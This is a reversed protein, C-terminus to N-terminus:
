GDTTARGDFHELRSAALSFSTCPPSALVVDADPLDTPRLDMVDATIDPDFREQIEVTTVEWNDADEFASSFGGLGSFLDLCHKKSNETDTPM